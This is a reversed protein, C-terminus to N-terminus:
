LIQLEVAFRKLQLKVADIPEAMSRRQQVHRVCVDVVDMGDQRNSHQNKKEVGGARKELSSTAIRSAATSSVGSERAANWASRPLPLALPHPLSGMGGKEGGVRGRQLLWLLYAIVMGCSRHMGASCHVLSSMVGLSLPLISHERAEIPPTAAPLPEWIAARSSPPGPLGCGSSLGLAAARPFGEGNIFRFIPDIFFVSLDFRVTDEAPIVCRYIRRRSIPLVAVDIAMWSQTPNGNGGGGAPSNPRDYWHWYSHVEGDLPYPTSQPLSPSAHPIKAYPVWELPSLLGGEQFDLYPQLYRLFAHSEDVGATPSLPSPLTTAPLPKTIFKKLAGLVIHHHPSPAVSASGCGQRVSEPYCQLVRTISFYDLLLPQWAADKGSIYLQAIHRERSTPTRDKLADRPTHDGSGRPESETNVNKSLPPRRSQTPPTSDLTTKALGPLGAVLASLWSKKPFDVVEKPTTSGVGNGDHSHAAPYDFPFVGQLSRRVVEQTSRMVYQTIVDKFFVIHRRIYELAATEVAGLRYVRKGLTTPESSQPAWLTPDNCRKQAIVVVLFARIFKQLFLGGAEQGLTCRMAPPSSSKSASFSSGTAATPDLRPLPSLIRTSEVSDAYHPNGRAVNGDKVKYHIGPYSISNGASHEACSVAMRCPASATFGSLRSQFPRNSAHTERGRDNGDRRPGNLVTNPYPLAKYLVPKQKPRSFTGRGGNHRNELPRTGMRLRKKKSRRQQLLRPSDLDVEYTATSEADDDDDGMAACDLFPREVAWSSPDFSHVESLVPPRLPLSQGKGTNDNKADPEEECNSERNHCGYDGSLADGTNQHSKLSLGSLNWPQYLWMDTPRLPGNERRSKSLNRTINYNGRRNGNTSHSRTGTYDVRQQEPPPENPLGTQQQQRKSFYDLYEEYFREAEVNPATYLMCAKPGELCSSEFVHVVHTTRRRRRRFIQRQYRAGRRKKNVSRSSPLASPASFPTSPPQFHGRESGLGPSDRFSVRGRGGAEETGKAEENEEHYTTSLPRCNLLLRESWSGWGAWSTRSAEGGGAAAPIAGADGASAGMVGHSRECSRLAQNAAVEAARGDQHNPDIGVPPNREGLPRQAQEEEGGRVNLGEMSPAYSLLVLLLDVNWTLAAFVFAVDEMPLLEQSPPLSPPSTSSATWAPHPSVPPNPGAAPLSSSAGWGSTITRSSTAKNCPSAEAPISELSRPPGQTSLGELERQSGGEPPKVPSWSSPPLAEQKAKAHLSHLLGFSPVYAAASAHHEM